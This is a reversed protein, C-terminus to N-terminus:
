VEGTLRTMYEDADIEDHRSRRNLLDQVRAIGSQKVEAVSQACSARQNLLQHIQRDISDIQDRLIRLEKEQESM